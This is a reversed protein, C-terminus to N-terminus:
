QTTMFGLKLIELKLILFSFLIIIFDVRTSFEGETFVFKMFQAILILHLSHSYLEKCGRSANSKIVTFINTIAAPRQSSVQTEHLM